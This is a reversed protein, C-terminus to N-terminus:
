AAVQAALALIPSSAAAVILAAAAFFASMTLFSPRITM